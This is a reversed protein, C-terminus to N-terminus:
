HHVAIRIDDSFTKIQKIQSPTILLLYTNFLFYVNDAECHSICYCRTSLFLQVSQFYCQCHCKIGWVYGLTLQLAQTPLVLSGLVYKEHGNDLVRSILSIDICKLVQKESFEQGKIGGINGSTWGLFSKYGEVRLEGLSLIFVDDPILQHLFIYFM